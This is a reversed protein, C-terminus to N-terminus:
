DSKSLTEKNIEIGKDPSITKNSTTGIEKEKHQHDPTLLVAAGPTKNEKAISLANQLRPSFSAGLECPIQGNRLLTVITQSM